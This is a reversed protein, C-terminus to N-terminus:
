LVLLVSVADDYDFGFIIILRIFHCVSPIDYGIAALTTPPMCTFIQITSIADPIIMNM